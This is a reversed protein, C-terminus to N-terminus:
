FNIKILFLEKKLYLKDNEEKLMVNYSGIHDTNKNEIKLGFEKLEKYSSYVFVLRKQKTVYDFVELVDVSLAHNSKEPKM